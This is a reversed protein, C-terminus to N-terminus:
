DNNKNRQGWVRVCRLVLGNPLTLNAPASPARGGDLAAPGRASWALCAAIVGGILMVKSTWSNNAAKGAAKSPAKGRPPM